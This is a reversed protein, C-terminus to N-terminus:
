PLLGLLRRAFLLEVLSDAQQFRRGLLENTRYPAGADVNGASRRQSMDPGDKKENCQRSDGTCHDPSAGPLREPIVPQVIRIVRRDLDQLFRGLREADQHRVPGAVLDVPDLGQPLAQDCRPRTEHRSSVLGGARRGPRHAPSALMRAVDEPM